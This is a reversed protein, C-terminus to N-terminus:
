SEAQELRFLWVWQLSFFGLVKIQRNFFSVSGGTGQERFAILNKYVFLIPSSYRDFPIIMFYM